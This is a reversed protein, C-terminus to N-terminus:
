LSSFLHVYTREYTRVYKRVNRVPCVRYGRWLKTSHPSLFSLFVGSAKMLLKLVLVTQRFVTVFYKVASPKYVINSFLYIFLYLYIFLSAPVVPWRLLTRARPLKEM